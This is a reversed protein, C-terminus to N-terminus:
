WPFPLSAHALYLAEQSGRFIFKPTESLRRLVLKPKFLEPSKIVANVEDWTMWHTEYKEKNVKTMFFCLFFFLATTRKGWVDSLWHDKTTKHSSESNKSYDWPLWQRTRELLFLSFFKNWNNIEGVPDEKKSWLLQRRDNDKDHRSTQLFSQISVHHQQEKNKKKFLLFWFDAVVPRQLLFSWM